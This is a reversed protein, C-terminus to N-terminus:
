MGECIQGIVNVLEEFRVPKSFVRTAGLGRARQLERPDLSGTWVVLPIAAHNSERLWNLLDFGDLRHMRLDLVILDPAPFRARDHYAGGGELYEIAEQGDQVWHVGATPHSARVVVSFLYADDSHDEVLLIRLRRAM